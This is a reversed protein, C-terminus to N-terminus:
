IRRAAYRDCQIMVEHESMIADILNKDKYSNMKEVFDPDDTDVYGYEDWFVAEYLDGVKPSWLFKYGDTPYIEYVTGYGAVGHKNGSAFVGSSRAKWGFKKLFIDDLLRQVNPHMNLPKRDTRPKLITYNPLFDRFSM